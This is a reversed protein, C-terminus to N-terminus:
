GFNPAVRQDPTAGMLSGNTFVVGNIAHSRFRREERASTARRRSVASERMLSKESMHSRTAEPHGIIVSHLLRPEGSRVQAGV